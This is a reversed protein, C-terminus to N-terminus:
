DGHKTLRYLLKARELAKHLTMNTKAALRIQWWLTDEALDEKGIRIKEVEYPDAYDVQYSSLEKDTSGFERAYVTKGKDPSEFIKTM